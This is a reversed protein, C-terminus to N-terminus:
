TLKGGKKFSNKEKSIRKEKLWNEKKIKREWKGKKLKKKRRGIPM